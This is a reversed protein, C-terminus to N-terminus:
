YENKYLNFHQQFNIMEFSFCFMLIIGTFYEYHYPSQIRTADLQYSNLTVKTDILTKMMMMM